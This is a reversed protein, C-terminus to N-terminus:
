HRRKGRRFVFVLLAIVLVVGFTLPRAAKYKPAADLSDTTGWVYPNDPDQEFVRAIATGFDTAPTNSSAVAARGEAPVVTDRWVGVGSGVVGSGVVLASVGFGVAMALIVTFYAFYKSHAKSKM